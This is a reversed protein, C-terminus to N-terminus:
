PQERLLKALDGEACVCYVRWGDPWRHSKARGFNEAEERDLWVSETIWQEFVCPVDGIDSPFTDNLWDEANISEPEALEVGDTSKVRWLGDDYNFNDADERHPIGQVQLRRSQLLFIPDRTCEAECRKERATKERTLRTDQSGCRQCLVGPVVDDTHMAVNGCDHCKRKCPNM